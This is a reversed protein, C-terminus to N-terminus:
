LDILKRLDRKFDEALSELSQDANPAATSGEQNRHIQKLASWISEIARKIEDNAEAISINANAYVQEPQFVDNKDIHVFVRDRIKKLRGSFDKLWQIDVGSGVCDPKCRNLYWFSATDRSDELVRILRIMVDSQLAGAATQLFLNSPHLKASRMALVAAWDFRMQQAEATLRKVAHQFRQLWERTRKQTNM